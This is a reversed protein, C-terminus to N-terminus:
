PLEKNLLAYVYWADDTPHYVESRKLDKFIGKIYGNRSFSEYTYEFDQLHFVLTQEAELPMNQARQDLAPTLMIDGLAKEFVSLTDTNTLSIISRATTISSRAKRLINYAIRRRRYAPDVALNHLLVRTKNQGMYFKYLCCMGVLTIDNAKCLVFFNRKTFSDFFEETDTYGKSFELILGLEEVSLTSGHKVEFSLQHNMHNM